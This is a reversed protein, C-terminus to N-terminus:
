GEHNEGSHDLYLRMATEDCNPFKPCDLCDGWIKHPLSERPVMHFGLRTFFEPSYTLAFVSPLGLFAADRMLAAVIRRGVGKRQWSERVALSRIEGVDDWVVHLAGCGIITEGSAVVVFDRLNQFAQHQSRVLMKGKAAYDNILQVMGPVDKIVAARVVLQDVTPDTVM